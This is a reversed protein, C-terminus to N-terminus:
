RGMQPTQQRYVKPNTHSIEEIHIKGDMVIGFNQFERIKLVSSEFIISQNM